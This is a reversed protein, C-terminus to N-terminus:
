SKAGTAKNIALYATRVADNFNDRGPRGGSATQVSITDVLKQLAALMEARETLLVRVDDGFDETAPMYNIPGDGVDRWQILRDYATKM